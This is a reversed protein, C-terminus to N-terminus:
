IVSVLSTPIEGSPQLVPNADYKVFATTNTVLSKKKSKSIVVFKRGDTGELHYTNVKEMPHIYQAWEGMAVQAPNTVVMQTSVREVVESSVVKARAVLSARTIITQAYAVGGPFKPTYMEHKKVKAHLSIVQGVSLDMDRSAFYVYANGAEDVFSYFHTAGFNSEWTRYALVKAGEIMIKEDVKGQFKSNQVMKSWSEKRARRELDRQYFGVASAILGAFKPHAIGSAMAVRLSNEYDSLSEVDREAFFTECHEVVAAALNFDKESPKYPAPNDKQAYLGNSFALDCTSQGAQGRERAETRSLWGDERISCCIYPLFRSITVYREGAGFGGGFGDDESDELLESMAFLIEASSCMAVPNSLGTYAQLCQRGVQSLQGEQSRIVFTDSRKRTAHCHDCNDASASRYKALEGESVKAGPCVRLVAGVGEVHTLAAVFEWGDVKPPKPSLLEVDVYVREVTGNERRVLVTYPVGTRIAVEEVVHGLKVLRAVRRNVLEIQSRLLDLNEAPVKFVKPSTEVKNDM